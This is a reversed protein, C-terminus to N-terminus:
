HEPDFRLGRRNDGKKHEAHAVHQGCRYETQRRDKGPPPDRLVKFRDRRHGQGRQADNQAENHNEESGPYPRINIAGALVNALLCACESFGYQERIGQRRLDPRVHSLGDLPMQM